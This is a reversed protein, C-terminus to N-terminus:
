HNLQANQEHIWRVIAPIYVAIVQNPCNVWYGDEHGRTYSKSIQRLDLPLIGMRAMVLDWHEPNVKYDRNNSNKLRLQNNVYRVRLRRNRGLTPIEVPVDNFYTVAENYAIPDM